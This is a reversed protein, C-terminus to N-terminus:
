EAVGPRLSIPPERCVRHVIAVRLQHGHIGRDGQGGGRALSVRHGGRRQGRGALQALRQRKGRGEGLPDRGVAPRDAGDEVAVVVAQQHHDAGARDVVGLGGQVIRTAQGPQGRRDGIAQQDHHPDVDLLRAGGHAPLSEGVVGAQVAAAVHGAAQVGGARQHAVDGRETQRHGGLQQLRHERGVQVVQEGPHRDAGPGGLGLQVALQGAAELRHDAELVAGAALQLDRQVGHLGGRMGMAVERHGLIAAGHDALGGAVGVGVQHQAAAVALGVVRSGVDQRRAAGELGGAERRPDHDVAAVGVGALVM